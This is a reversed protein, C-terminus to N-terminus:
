WLRGSTYENQYIILNHKAQPSEIHWQYNIMGKSIGLFAYWPYGNNIREFAIARHTGDIITFPGESTIGVLIIKEDKSVNSHGKWYQLKSKVEEYHTIKQNGVNDRYGRNPSIEQFAKQLEFTKGSDLFWNFIPIIYISKTDEKGVEVMTWETDTPIKNLIPNRGSMLQRREENEKNSNFDPRAVLKKDFCIGQQSLRFNESNLWAHIMQHYTVSEIERMQM